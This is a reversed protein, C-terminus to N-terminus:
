AQAMLVKEEAGESAAAPEEVLMSLLDMATDEGLGPAVVSLSSPDLTLISGNDTTIKQVKGKVQDGNAIKNFNASTSLVSISVQTKNLYDNYLEAAKASDGAQEAKYGDRLIQKNRENKIAIDSNTVLNFIKKQLVAGSGDAAPVLEGQKNKVDIVNGNGRISMVVHTGVMQETIRKRSNLVNQVGQLTNIRAQTTAM